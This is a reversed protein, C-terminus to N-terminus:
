QGSVANSSILHPPSGRKSLVSALLLALWIGWKSEIIMEYRM